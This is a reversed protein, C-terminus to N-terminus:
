LLGKLRMFFYLVEQAKRTTQKGDIWYSKFGDPTEIAPGDIRHLGGNLFYKKYGDAWIIAPGDERHLLGDVYYEKDGNVLEVAPGDERHRIGDKFYHKDGLINAMGTFNEPIELLSDVIIVDVSPKEILNSM